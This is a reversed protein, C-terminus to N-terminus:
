WQPSQCTFPSQSPCTAPTASPPLLVFHVQHGGARATIGVGACLLAMVLPVHPWLLVDNECVLGSWWMQGCM